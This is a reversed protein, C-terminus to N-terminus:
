QVAIGINSVVTVAVSKTTATADSNGLSEVVIILGLRVGNRRM